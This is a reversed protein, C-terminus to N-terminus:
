SFNGVLSSLRYNARAYQCAVNTELLLTWDSRINRAKLTKETKKKKKKQSKYYITGRNNQM